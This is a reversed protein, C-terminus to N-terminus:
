VMCAYYHLDALFINKGRELDRVTSPGLVSRDALYLKKITIWFLWPDIEHVWRKRSKVAIEIKGLAGRHPLGRHFKTVTNASLVLNM